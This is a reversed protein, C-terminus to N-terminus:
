KQTAATSAAPKHYGLKEMCHHELERVQKEAEQKCTVTDDWTQAFSAGEKQYGCSSLALLTVVVYIKNMIM